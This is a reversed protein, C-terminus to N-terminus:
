RLRIIFDTGEGTEGSSTIGQDSVILSSGTGLQEGLRSALDPPMTIRSLAESASPTDAAPVQPAAVVITHKKNAAVPETMRATAPLSLATWQMPKTADGDTRATFVHTGLPLDGSITIPVDFLPTFNQRVYLKADKRSVFIAIPGLKKVPAAAQLPKLTETTVPDPKTIDAKPAEPKIIEAEASTDQVSDATTKVIAVAATAPSADTAVKEKALTDSLDVSANALRARAVNALPAPEAVKLSDLLPHTIAAPSLEGPAIVVRASMRTWGWMQVAFNMPMRVCGHSAPYGPLVGAHLAIGSWTIRQMYPM